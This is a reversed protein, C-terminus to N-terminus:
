ARNRNSQKNQKRIGNIIKEVVIKIISLIIMLLNFLILTSFRVDCINKEEIVTFNKNIKVYPKKHYLYWTIQNIIYSSIFSITTPTLISNENGLTVDLTVNYFHYDMLPKVSGKVNLLKKYPVIIAKNKTLHIALGEDIKEIYGNLINILGYLKINFYLKKDQLIFALKLNIFIPFILLIFVIITAILM